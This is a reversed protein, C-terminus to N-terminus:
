RTQGLADLAQQIQDQTHQNGSQTCAKIGRQYISRAEGIRGLKELVQGCQYYAAEFERAADIIILLERLATELDDAKALEIALMYRTRTDGPNQELLSKLTEIRNAAM